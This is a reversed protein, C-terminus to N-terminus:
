FFIYKRDPTVRASAYIDFDSAKLAEKMSVAKTWSGDWKLAKPKM